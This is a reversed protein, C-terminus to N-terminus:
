QFVQNDCAEVTYKLDSYISWWVGGRPCDTKCGRIRSCDNTYVWSDALM